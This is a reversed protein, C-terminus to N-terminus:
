PLLRAIEVLWPTDLRELSGQLAPSRLWERLPAYALRGEAAYSRTRASVAEDGEAQALLAEALRTKGIGAEGTIMVAAAAGCKTEDWLDLLEFWEAKRGVLPLDDAQAPPPESRLDRYVRQVVAGPETDLECKLVRSCRQFVRLA